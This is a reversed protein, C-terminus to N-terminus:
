NLMFSWWLMINSVELKKVGEFPSSAYVRKVFNIAATKEDSFSQSRVNVNLLILVFLIPLTKKM